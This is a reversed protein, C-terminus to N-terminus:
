KHLFNRIFDILAYFPRGNALHYNSGDFSSGGYATGAIDLHMWNYSVFKELYCAATVSGAEGSWSGINCIDAVDSKLMEHYEPMLPLQWVYDLTKNASKIIEKSYEEHNSYLGSCIKGLATVCAGTLTAIDIVLKPDFKKAYVLADCLILRGEADTNVIEVTKGLMTNIVDGPKVASGSPLNECTPVLVTLNIPLEMKAVTLFLSIVTAAGCMDFKMEHMRSSPKLSIGGSDFTIGKGILVLPKVKKALGNYEMIIFKPDEISGKSVALFANMSSKILDKKELIEVRIKKSIKEISKATQAIYTPTVINAPNNALHKLLLLGEVMSISNKIIEKHLKIEKDVYFNINELYYNKNDKKLENFSYTYNCIHVISFELLDDLQINKILNKEIIINVKSINNQKLYCAISKLVKLYSKLSPEKKEGISVLLFNMAILSYSGAEKLNIFKPIKINAIKKASPFLTNEISFIVNLENLHNKFKDINCINVALNSKFKDINM